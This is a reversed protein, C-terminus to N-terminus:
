HARTNTAIGLEPHKPDYNVTNGDLQLLCSNLREQEFLAVECDQNIVLHAIFEEIGNACMGRGYSGPKSRHAYKLLVHFKNNIHKKGIIEVQEIFTNKSLASLDVTKLLLGNAHIAIQAQTNWSFPHVQQLKIKQKQGNAKNWVLIGPRERPLQEFREKTNLPKCHEDVFAESRKQPVFLTLSSNCIEDSSFGILPTKLGNDIRYWGEVRIRRSPGQEKPCAQSSPVLYLQFKRGNEITGQYSTYRDLTIKQQVEWSSQGFGKQGFILVSIATLITLGQKM